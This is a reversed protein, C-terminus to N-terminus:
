DSAFEKQLSSYRNLICDIEEQTFDFDILRRISYDANANQRIIRCPITKYKYYLSVALRHSGNVLHFNKDLYIESKKDFRYIEVSKILDVFRIIEDKVNTANLQRKRLKEYLRWGYNNKNYYNEIALLRIIVDYRFFENKEIHCSLLDSICCSVHKVFVKTRVFRILSKM